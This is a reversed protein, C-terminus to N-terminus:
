SNKASSGTYTTNRITKEMELGAALDVNWCLSNVFTTLDMLYGLRGMEGLGTDDYSDFYLSRVIYSGGHDLTLVKDLKERLFLMENYPIVFKYEHRFTKLVTM